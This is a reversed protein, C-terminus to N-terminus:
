KGPKTRFKNNKLVVNKAYEKGLSYYVKRTKGYTNIFSNGKICVGNCKSLILMCNGVGNNKCKNNLIKVKKVWGLNKKYGGVAIANELNGTLTNNKVIIDSTSYKYLLPKQEAGIEIGGGSKKVVNNEIRIFQGGDVYIGYSTAIKSVSGIVTNGSVRCHRPFDKSPESCYGYNGSLDIGINGNNKLENDLVDINTCNGTVSICESWGTMNNSCRNEKITVHHISKKLNEGFLLIANASQNNKKVNIDHIYNGSLEVHHTGSTVRIGCAYKGEAYCLNLNKVKLYSAGDICLLTPAKLKIGSINVNEGPYACITIYKGRTGSVKAGIYVEEAYVGKRIYLTDGPKLVKVATNINRFPRKKTGKWNDNGEVSVYYTHSSEPTAAQVAVTGLMERDMGSITLLVMMIGAIKKIIKSMIDIDGKRLFSKNDVLMKGCNSYLIM